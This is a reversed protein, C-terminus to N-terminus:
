RPEIILFVRCLLILGHVFLNSFLDGQFAILDDVGNQGFGGPSLVLVEPFLGLGLVLEWAITEPLDTNGRHLGPESLVAFPTKVGELGFVSGVSAPGSTEILAQELSNLDLALGVGEERHLSEIFLKPVLIQQAVGRNVVIGQKPHDFLLSPKGELISGIHALGVFHVVDIIEPDRVEHVSGLDAGRIARSLGDEAGDEIVVGAHHHAMGETGGLGDAGQRNDELLGEQGIADGLPEVDIVTGTERRIEQSSTTGLGPDGEDVRLGIIAGGAPLYFTEKPGDAFPEERAELFTDGQLLDVFSESEPELLVIVMFKVGADPLSGDVAIVAGHTPHKDAPEGPGFEILDEEDAVFPHDIVVGGDAEFTREVLDGGGIDTLPDLDAVGDIVGFFEVEIVVTNSHAPDFQQVLLLIGAGESGLLDGGM